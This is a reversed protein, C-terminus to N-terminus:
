KYSPGKFRCDSWRIKSKLLIHSTLPETGRRMSLMSHSVMAVRAEVKMAVTKKALCLLMITTKIQTLKITFSTSLMSSRTRRLLVGSKTQRTRM